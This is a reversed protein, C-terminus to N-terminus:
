FILVKFFYIVDSTLLELDSRQPTKKWRVPPYKGV